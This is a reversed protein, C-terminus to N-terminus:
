EDYQDPYMQRHSWGLLGNDHVRCSFWAHNAGCYERFENHQLALYGLTRFRKIAGTTSKAYVWLGDKDSDMPTQYGSAHTTSEDPFSSDCGFIDFHRFGLYMAVTLTRTFTGIGGACMTSNKFIEERTDHEEQSNPISHWLVRKFDKLADFTRPDCHSCIYYTVDKHASKLVTDPEADIEFFVCANPVIGREILWTHSWNIAFIYNSRDKALDRIEDLRDNISPAGGVIIARGLRPRPSQKLEPLELTKAYRMHRAADATQIRETGDPNTPKVVSIAIPIKTSSGIGDDFEVTELTDPIGRYLAHTHKEEWETPAM